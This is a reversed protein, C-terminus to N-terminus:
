AFHLCNGRFMARFIRHPIGRLLFILSYKNAASTRFEKIRENYENMSFVLQYILILCLECRQQLLLSLIGAKYYVM